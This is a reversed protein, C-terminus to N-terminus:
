QNKDNKLKKLAERSSLGGYGEKLSVSALLNGLGKRESSKVHDKSLESSKEPRKVVKILKLEELNNLLQRVKNNNYEIIIISM